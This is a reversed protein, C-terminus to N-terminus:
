GARTLAIREHVRECLRELHEVGHEVVLQQSLYWLERSAPWLPALKVADKLTCVVLADRHSDALAQVETSTFAHHDRYAVLEADAGLDALQRRFLDPEGIAALCLVKAGNLSTLPKSGAGGVRELGAPTLHAVTVPVNPLEATVLTRAAAVQDPNASKRTLVVVSASKAAGLHERWPGSPLLRRPRSLQEVSLLVVDAVRSVRRHQFADDLVVVQADAAQAMRVGLVRDVLAIVPITPNLRRHVEAEDDGYGRLVIAARARANLKAALWASFPTKGTGGVTLNGVSVTPLVAQHTKFVGARYLGRRAATIAGFAASFPWLATRAAGALPDSGFWVREVFSV